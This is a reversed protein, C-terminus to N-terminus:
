KRRKLVCNVNFLHEIYIFKQRHSSEFWSGRTDSAVARGVSGCGCGLYIVTLQGVKKSFLSYIARGMRYTALDDPLYTTFNPHRWLETSEDAVGPEVGLCSM